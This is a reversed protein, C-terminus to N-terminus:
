LALKAGEFEIVKDLYSGLVNLHVRSMQEGTLANGNSTIVTGVGVEYTDRGSRYYCKGDGDKEWAAVVENTIYFASLPKASKFEEFKQSPLSGYSQLFKDVPVLIESYRGNPLLTAGRLIISNKTIENRAGVVVKGNAVVLSKLVTGIEIPSPSRAYVVSLKTIEANSKGILLRVDDFNLSFKRQTSICPLIKDAITPMTPETRYEVEGFLKNIESKDCACQTCWGMKCEYAPDAFGEKGANALMLDLISPLKVANM